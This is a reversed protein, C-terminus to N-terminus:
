EHAALAAAELRYLVAESIVKKARITEPCGDFLKQFRTKPEKALMAELLSRFEPHIGNFDFRSLLIAHIIETASKPQKFPLRGGSLFQHLTLGLAWIDCMQSRNLSITLPTEPRVREIVYRRHDEKLSKLFQMFVEPPIFLWSGITGLGKAARDTAAVSTDFHDVLVFETTNSPGEDRKAFKAPYHFFSFKPLRDKPKVEHRIFAEPRINLHLRREEVHLQCLGVACDIAWHLLDSVDAGTDDPRVKSLPDVELLDMLLFIYKGSVGLNHIKVLKKCRAYMGSPKKALIREGVKSLFPRGDEQSLELLMGGLGFRGHVAAIEQLQDVSYIKLAFPKNEVNVAFVPGMNGYGLFKQIGCTVTAKSPGEMAKLLSPFVVKSEKDIKAMLEVFLKEVAAREKRHIEAVNEPTSILLELREITKSDYVEAAILDVILQEAHVKGDM